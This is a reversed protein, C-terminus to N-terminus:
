KSLILKSGIATKNNDGGTGDKGARKHTLGGEVVTWELSKGAMHSSLHDHM